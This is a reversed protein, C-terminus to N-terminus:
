KYKCLYSTQGPSKVSFTRDAEVEFSEGSNFSHWEQHGPLLVELSGEIISMTEHQSTNFDYEGKEMVGITSNGEASQYGLSKVAGEFYENIRIM